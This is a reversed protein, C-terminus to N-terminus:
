HEDATKRRTVVLYTECSTYPCAVSQDIQTVDVMTQTENVSLYTDLGSPLSHPEIKNCVFERIGNGFTYVQCTGYTVPTQCSVSPLTPDACKSYDPPAPPDKHGVPYPSIAGARPTTAIVFLFLVLGLESAALASHTIRSVNM